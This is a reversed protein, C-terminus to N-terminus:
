SYDSYMAGTGAFTVAMVIMLIIYLVGIIGFITGIWGTVKGVTADTNFEREARKAKSIAIPGLIIGVVFLSIIGLIMSTQALQAGEAQQQPYAYGPYGPGAGFQQNQGPAQNQAQYPYQPQQGPTGSTYPNNPENNSTSM